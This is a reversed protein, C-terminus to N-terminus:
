EFRNDGTEKMKSYINMLINRKYHMEQDKPHKVQFLLNLNMKTFLNINILYNLNHLIVINLPTITILLDM